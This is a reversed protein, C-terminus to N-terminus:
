FILKEKRIVSKFKLWSKINRTSIFFFTNKEKRKKKKHNQKCKFFIYSVSFHFPQVLLLFVQKLKPM